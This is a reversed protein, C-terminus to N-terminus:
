VVNVKRSKRRAFEDIISDFNLEELLDSNICLIALANLNEQMLSNRQYNKTKKLISFSREGSANTIMLCLFIRLIIEINPFSPIIKYQHLLQMLDIANKCNEKLSNLTTTISKLFYKFQICENGLAEQFDNPYLELVSQCKELIVKDDLNQLNLLFSCKLEIDSYAAGRDKIDRFLNDIIKYFM